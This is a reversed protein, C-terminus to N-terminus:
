YRRKKKRFYEILYDFLYRARDLVLDQTPILNKEFGGFGRKFFSLGQWPHNKKEKPVVGWFNYFRIKRQRAFQIIRWQLFYAPFLGKSHLSAGQHYYATDSYFIIVASALPQEAKFVSFIYVQNEKKFADVEHKLFDYSFPTFKQRKATKQYLQYFVNLDRREYGIRARLGQNLSQRIAYRTGKRMDKLLKNEEPSIDLIWLNEAHIHLPAQIFNSTKFVARNSPSDDLYPSVRLFSAHERKALELCDKLFVPFLEKFDTLLPGHPCFIFTGRRAKIKVLLFVGKLIGDEFIGRRFIKNGLSLNLQGWSWSQLFSKERFTLVFKEWQNKNTIEQIRM